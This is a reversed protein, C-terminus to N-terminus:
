EGMNGLCFPRANLAASLVFSCRYIPDLDGHQAATTGERGFPQSLRQFRQELVSQNRSGRIPERFPAVVHVSRSPM